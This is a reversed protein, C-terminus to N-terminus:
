KFVVKVHVEARKDENPRHACGPQGRGEEKRKEVRNVKENAANKIFGKFFCFM